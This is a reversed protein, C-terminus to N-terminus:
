PKFNVDFMSTPEVVTFTVKANPGEPSVYDAKGYPTIYCEYFGLQSFTGSWSTSNNQGVSLYDVGDKWIHLWYSRANDAGWNLTVASGKNVTSGCSATIWTNSPSGYVSGSYRAVYEFDTLGDLTNIRSNFKGNYSIKNRSKQSGWCEVTTFTGGSVTLVMASHGDARIVDGVQLGGANKVQTKTTYHTWDSSPYSGTIQYGIFDAFAYCQVSSHFVYEGYFLGSDIKIKSGNGDRTYERNSNTQYIGHNKKGSSYYQNTLCDGYPTDSATYSSTAAADLASKTKSVNNFNYTWYKGSKFGYANCVRDIDDRTISSAAYVTNNVVPLITFISLSIACALLSSFIKKLQRM